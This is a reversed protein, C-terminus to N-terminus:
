WREKLYSEDPDFMISSPLESFSFGNFGLKVGLVSRLLYAFPNKCLHTEGLDPARQPKPAM